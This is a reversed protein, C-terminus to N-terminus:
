LTYTRGLAAVGIKGTMSQVAIMNGAVLTAVRSYVSPLGVPARQYSFLTGIGATVGSLGNHEEFIPVGAANITVIGHKAM